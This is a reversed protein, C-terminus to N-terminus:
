PCGLPWTCPCRAVGRFHICRADNAAHVDAELHIDSAAAARMMGSPDMETPQLYVAAVEVGNLSKPKGIPYEKAAIPGVAFAMASTVSIVTAFMPRKM